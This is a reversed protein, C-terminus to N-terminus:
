RALQEYKIALHAEFYKKFAVMTIKLTQKQQFEEDDNLDLDENHDPALIQLTSITNFLRRLGDQGDLVNLLIRFACANGVFMTAFQKGSEHASDLCWLMYRFIEELVPEQLLCLKELSDEDCSIFYFCQGVADSALSPRPM